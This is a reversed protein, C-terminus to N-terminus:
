QSSSSSSQTSGDGSDDNDSGFKKFYVKDGFRLDVYELSGDNINLSPFTSAALAVATKEQGLVYTIRTGSQAYLDAEDNRLVLTIVPVGLSKIEKVFELANPISAASSLHVGIPMTTSSVLLGYVKLVNTAPSADVAFILGNSDTNYCPQSTNQDAATSTTLASDSSDVYLTSSATDSSDTSSASTDTVPASVVSPSNSSTYTSGCWVFSSERPVSMISISDFSTRSITVSVVEPYQTLLQDRIESDPFFFISNRPVIYGITGTLAKVTDAQISSADPGAAQVYQIRFAPLWVCIYLGVIVFVSVVSLIIQMRNRARKRRNKLPERDKGQLVKKPRMAATARVPDSSNMQEIQKQRKQALLSAKEAKKEARTPKPARQVLKRLPARQVNQRRVTSGQSEVRSRQPSQLQPRASPAPAQPRQVLQPSAKKKPQIDWSKRESM